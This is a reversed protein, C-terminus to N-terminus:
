VFYTGSFILTKGSMQANTTNAGPRLLFLATASGSFYNLDATAATTYNVQGFLAPNGAFPFGKLSAANASATAPYGISAIYSVQRGVRTYRAFSVTLTLNDASNDAPTWTGEEYWNLLQSTMGSAPTNAAFNVGKGAAPALIQDITAKKTAAGQVIPTVETGALASSASLQSIKLDAM